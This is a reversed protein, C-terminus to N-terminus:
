VDLLWPARGPLRGVRYLLKWRTVSITASLKRAILATMSVAAYRVIGTKDVVVAEPTRSAHLKDALTTGSDKVVPFDYACKAAYKKVKTPSDEQNSNVV